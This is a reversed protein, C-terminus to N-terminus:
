ALTHRLQTIANKVAKASIKDPNKELTVILNEPRFIAQAANNLDECSMDEYMAAQTELDTEAINGSLWAFGTLENMESAQDYQFRLNDTFFARTREMQSVPVYRKFGSLIAGIRELSEVLHEHPVFYDIILRRFLGATEVRSQIDDTIALTERLEMFLSSSLGVGLIWNLVDTCLPFVLDDDVDFSLQVQAWDWEGSTIVDSKEDRMCFGVPVAQEFPEEATTNTAEEMVSQAAALMGASFNGTLVFCANQPQFVKRQWQRLTAESMETVSKATGMLPFAGAKGQWYRTLIREQFDPADNEIQRLVVQKEQAIEAETWPHRQFFLSMLDLAQDFYKPAFELRFVIAEQYTSGRLTAGIADLRGYLERQSLGGLNRFCLHELLHSVGQNQRNEYLPGAKFYLGMEVSHLQDMQCSLLTMGNDLCLEHTM